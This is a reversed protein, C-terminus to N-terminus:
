YQHFVSQGQANTQQITTNVYQGQFSTYHDGTNMFQGQISTIQGQVSTDQELPINYQYQASVTQGQINIYQSQANSHQGVQPMPGNLINQQCFSAQASINEGQNNMYQCQANSPQSVQPMTGNFINQQVDPPCHMCNSFRGDSPSVATADM